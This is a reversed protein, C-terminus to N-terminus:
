RVRWHVIKWKCTTERHTFRSCLSATIALVVYDVSRLTPWSENVGSHELVNLLRDATRSSRDLVLDLSRNEILVYAQQCWVLRVAGRNARQTGRLVGVCLM